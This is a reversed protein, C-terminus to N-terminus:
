QSSWPVMEYKLNIRNKYEGKHDLMKLLCLELYWLGLDLAEERAEKPVKHLLPWTRKIKPM